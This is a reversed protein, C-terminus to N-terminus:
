AGLGVDHVARCDPCGPPLGCKACAAGGTFCELQAIAMHQWGEAKANAIAKRLTLMREELAWSKARQFELDRVAAILGKLTGASVAGMRDAEWDMVFQLEDAITAHPMGANPGLVESLASGCPGAVDDRM